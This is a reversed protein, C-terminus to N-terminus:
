RSEDWLAQIDRDYVGFDCVLLDNFYIKGNTGSFVIMKGKSENMVTTHRGRMDPVDGKIPWKRWKYVDLDLEYLDNLCSTESKGAFVLMKRRINDVVATHSRVGAPIDGTCVRTKWVRTELDLEAVDNLYVDSAHGGFVIMKKGFVVASHRERARVEGTCSVKSWKLTTLDLQYLSNFIGWSWGGFVLMKNNYCVASHLIFEPPIEGKCDLQKWEYTETDLAWADRFDGSVDNRGSFNIFKTDGQYLAGSHGVRAQPMPGKSQFEGASHRAAREKEDITPPDATNDCDYIKRWEMTDLDLEWLDNMAYNLPKPAYGGFILMRQKPNSPTGHEVLVCSHGSRPAPVISNNAHKIDHKRVKEVKLKTSRQAAADSASTSPEMGAATTINTAAVGDEEEEESDEGDIEETFNYVRSWIPVQAVFNKRRPVQLEEQAVVTTSSCSSTSESIQMPCVEQAFGESPLNNHTNRHHVYDIMTTTM